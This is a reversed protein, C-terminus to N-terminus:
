LFCGFVNSSNLINAKAEKQLVLRSIFSSWYTIRVFWESFLSHERHMPPGWSEAKDHFPPLLFVRFPFAVKVLVVDEECHSILTQFNSGYCVVSDELFLIIETNCGSLIFIGKLVRYKLPANLM